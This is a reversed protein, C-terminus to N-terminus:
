RNTFSSCQSPDVDEDSILENGTGFEFGAVDGNLEQTVVRRAGNADVYCTETKTRTITLTAPLSSTFREVLEACHDGLNPTDIHALSNLTTNSFLDVNKLVLASSTPFRHGARGPDCQLEYQLPQTLEVQRTETELVHSTISAQALAPTLAPILGLAILAFKM